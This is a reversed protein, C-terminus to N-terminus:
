ARMAATKSTSASTPLTLAVPCPRRVTLSSLRNPPDHECRELNCSARKTLAQESPLSGSITAQRQLSVPVDKVMITTRHDLGASIHAILESTQPMGLGGSMIRDKRVINQEPVRKRDYVEWPAPSRDLAFGGEHSLRRSLSQSSGYPSAWGPSGTYGPTIKVPPPLSRHKAGPSGVQFPDFAGSWQSPSGSSPPTVPTGYSSTLASSSATAPTWFVDQQTPQAPTSFMVVPKSSDDSMSTMSTMHSSSASKSAALTRPPTNYTLPGPSDESRLTASLSSNQVIIQDLAEVAQQAQRPDYFEALYKQM